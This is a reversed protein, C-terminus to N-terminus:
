HGSLPCCKYINPCDQGANRHVCILTRHMLSQEEIVKMCKAIKPYTLCM